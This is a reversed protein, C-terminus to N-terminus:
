RRPAVRRREVRLPASHVTARARRTREEAPIPDQTHASEGASADPWRGRRARQTRRQELQERVARYSIDADEGEGGVLGDRGLSCLSFHRRDPAVAYVYPRRWPDLPHVGCDLARWGDLDPLLLADLTDPYRGANRTAFEGLAAGIGVLDSHAARSIPCRTRRRVNPLVIATVLLTVLLLTGRLM